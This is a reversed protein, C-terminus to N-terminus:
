ENYKQKPLFMLQTSSDNNKDEMIELGLFTSPNFGSGHVFLKFGCIAHQTISIGVLEPLCVWQYGSHQM